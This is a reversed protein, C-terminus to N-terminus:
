VKGQCKRCKKPNHEVKNPSATVWVHVGDRREIHPYHQVDLLKGETDAGYAKISIDHGILTEYM